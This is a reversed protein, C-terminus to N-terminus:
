CNTIVRSLTSDVSSPVDLWTTRFCMNELFRHIAPITAAKQLSFLAGRVMRRRSVFSPRLIPVSVRGSWEQMTILMFSTTLSTVSSRQCHGSDHLATSLELLWTLEHHIGRSPSLVSPQTTVCWTRFDKFLSYFPEM